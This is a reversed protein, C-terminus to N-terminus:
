MLLRATLLAVGGHVIWGTVTPQGVNDSTRIFNAKGSKSLADSLMGTLFGTAKFSLPSGFVLLLGASAASAAFKDASTTTSANKDANLHMAAIVILTVGIVFLAIDTGRFKIGEPNFRGRVIGIASGNCATTEPAIAVGPTSAASGFSRLEVAM